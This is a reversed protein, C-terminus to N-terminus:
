VKWFPHFDDLSISHAEGFGSYASEIEFAFAVSGAGKEVIKITPPETSELV